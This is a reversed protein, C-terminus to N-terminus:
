HKFKRIKRKKIGIGSGTRKQENTIDEGKREEEARMDTMNRRTPKEEATDNTIIKSQADLLIRDIDEKAYLSFREKMKDVGGNGFSKSGFIKLVRNLTQKIRTVDNTNDQSLRPLEQRLSIIDRRFLETKPVITADIKKADRNIKKYYRNNEINEMYYNIDKDIVQVDDNKIEENEQEVKKLMEEMTENVDDNDAIEQISDVNISATENIVNDVFNDDDSQILENVKEATLLKDYLIKNVNKNQTLTITLAQLKDLLDNKSLENMNTQEQIKDILSNLLSENPIIDRIGSNYDQKELFNSIYEYASFVTLYNKQSELSTYINIFYRNFTLYNREGIMNLLNQSMAIDNDFLKNANQLATKETAFKDNLIENRTRNDQINPIIGFSVDRLAESITNSNKVKLNLNQERLKKNAILQKRFSM